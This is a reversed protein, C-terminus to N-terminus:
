DGNMEMLEYASLDGGAKVAKRDMRSQPSLRLRMSLAVSSRHAKELVVLWPNARGAVVPGEETLNAYASRALAIAQAYQEVLPGDTARFHDAPMTSVIEGFILKIEPPL